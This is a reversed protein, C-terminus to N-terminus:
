ILELRWVEFPTYIKDKCKFLIVGHCNEYVETVIVATKKPITANPRDKPNAWNILCEKGVFKERAENLTM